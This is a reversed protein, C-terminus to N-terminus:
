VEVVVLCVVIGRLIVVVVIVLVIIVLTTAHECVELFLKLLDDLVLFDLICDLQVLLKEGIV